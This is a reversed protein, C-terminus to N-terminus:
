QKIAERFPKKESEPTRSWWQYCDLFDEINDKLLPQLKKRLHDRRVAQLYRGARTTGFETVGELRALLDAM